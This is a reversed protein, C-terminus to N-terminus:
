FAVYCKSKCADYPCIFHSKSFHLELSAYDKYYTNKYFEDCLHCTLHMRQLHDLFVLDNFFYQECFDCWPHPLIEAGKETSADGYEIHSRL